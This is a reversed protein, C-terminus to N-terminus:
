LSPSRRSRGARTLTAFADHALAIIVLNEVDRAGRGILLDLARIALQRQFEVGIAVLAVDLGFFLELFRRLGVGDQAIGVLARAVIAKSVRPNAARSLAEVRRLEGTEFINERPEAVDEAKAAPRPAGSRLPAGVQTVVELDLELLRRM